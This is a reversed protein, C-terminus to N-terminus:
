EPSQAKRRAISFKKAEIASLKDAPAEAYLRAAEAYDKALWASEAAEKAGAIRGREAAIVEGEPGWLIHSKLTAVFSDSWDLAPGAYREVMEALEHAREEVRERTYLPREHTYPAGLYKLIYTLDLPIAHEDVAKNARISVGTGGARWYWHVLVRTRESLYEIVVGHIITSPDTTIITEARVCRFGRKELFSFESLVADRFM